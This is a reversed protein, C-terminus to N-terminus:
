AVPGSASNWSAFKAPDKQPVADRDRTLGYGALFRDLCALGVGTVLRREGHAYAIRVLAFGPPASVKAPVLPRLVFRFTALLEAVTPLTELSNDLYDVAIEELAGHCREVLEGPVERAQWLLPGDPPYAAILGGVAEPDRVFQPPNRRLARDLAALVSKLAPARGKGVDRLFDSLRDAPGDGILEGNERWWGM